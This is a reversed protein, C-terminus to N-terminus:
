GDIGGYHIAVVVLLAAGIWSGIILSSDRLSKVLEGLRIGVAQLVVALYIAYFAAGSVAYIESVSDIFFMCAFSVSGVRLILGSLQLALAARERRCIYLSMSIPSVLFQLILWLTMWSILEGARGWGSGFVLEVLSPSVVGLFALPGVGTKALGTLIKLTFAKLEGKEQEAGATAIFVQAVSNGILALPAQVVRLALILYGAEGGAVTLGIVLLPLQVAGINAIAEITSFKPYASYEKFVKHFASRTAGTLLHRDDRLFRTLLRIVGAGSSLVYGVVLGFSTGAYLGFGVQVASGSAAQTMRTSAIVGFMRKRTMWFQLASYTSIICMGVPIIWAFDLRHFWHPMMSNLVILVLAVVSSSLVSAGLAMMLLLAADADNKPLPLAIDFRLCGAVAGISIISSYLALVSFDSPSYIRTLLPLIALLIAQSLATGTMLVFISRLLPSYRGIDKFSFKFFRVAM